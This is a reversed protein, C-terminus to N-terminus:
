VAKKARGRLMEIVVPLVSVFVIGLTVLTFNDKVVPVNGFAYGAGVCIGVWAIAGTVNYLAFSPYSMAALGAVFPVFTRVIPVFRGLV